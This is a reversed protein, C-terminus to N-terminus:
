FHLSIKIGTSPINYSAYAYNIIDPEVRLSLDDSIDFKYLHADVSADIINLVYFLSGFICTLEFNRRYYNFNSYLLDANIIEPYYDTKSVDMKSRVLYTSKYKNAKLKYNYGLYGIVGFGVYIIPLKWYKKNYIQGMGPIIASFWAAKKPSHKFKTITDGPARIELINNVKSSFHNFGTYESVQNLLIKVKLGITDCHNKHPKPTTSTSNETQLIQANLLSDSTIQARRISDTHIRDADHQQALVTQFFFSVLIFIFYKCYEKIM